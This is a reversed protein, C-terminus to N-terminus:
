QNDNLVGPGMRAAASLRKLDNELVSVRAKLRLIEAERNAITSIECSECLFESSLSVMNKDCRDCWIVTM